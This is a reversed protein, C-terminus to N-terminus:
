ISDPKQTLISIVCALYFPKLILAVYKITQKVNSIKRKLRSKANILIFLAHPDNNYICEKLEEYICENLLKSFECTNSIVGNLDDVNLSSTSKSNYEDM